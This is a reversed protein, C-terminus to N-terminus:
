FVTVRRHTRVSTIAPTDWIYRSLDQTLSHWTGRLCHQGLMCYYVHVCAAPAPKLVGLQSTTQPPPPSLLRWCLCYNFVPKKYGLLFGKCPAEFNRLSGQVSSSSSLILRPFWSTM